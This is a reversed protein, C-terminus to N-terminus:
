TNYNLHRVSRRYFSLVLNYLHNFITNSVKTMELDRVKRKMLETEAVRKM